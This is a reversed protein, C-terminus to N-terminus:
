RFYDMKGVTLVYYACGWGSANKPLCFTKYPHISDDAGMPRLSNKDYTFVFLDVGWQNPPRVGNTDVKIEIYEGNNYEGAEAARWWVAVGNMLVVKYSNNLTSYNYSAQGNKLKYSGNYICHKNSTDTGCDIAIKLFPKLKDAIENASKSSKFETAWGSAEGYENEALRIARALISQTARLKSVTQKERINAALNPITMAAVVGIIGLTILVEALTFAAKKVRERIELKRGPELQFEERECLSLTNGLGQEGQMDDQPTFTTVLGQGEKM